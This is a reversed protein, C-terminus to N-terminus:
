RNATLEVRRGYAYDHENDRGFQTEGDARVEIELPVGRKMLAEKVVAARRRSLDRNFERTGRVDAFGDLKVSTAGRSSLCSADFDIWERAEPVLETSGYAFYVPVLPCSEMKIVQPSPYSTFCTHTSPNCLAGTPCAADARCSTRHAPDDQVFAPDTSSMPGSVEEALPDRREQSQPHSCGSLAAVAILMMMPRM